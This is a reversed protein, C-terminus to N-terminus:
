YRDPDGTDRQANQPRLGGDLGIDPIDGEWLGHLRQREPLKHGCTRKLRLDERSPPLAPTLPLLRRESCLPLGEDESPLGGRRLVPLEKLLASSCVGWEGAVLRSLGGGRECKKSGAPRSRMGRLSLM